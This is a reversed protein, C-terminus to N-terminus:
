ARSHGQSSHTQQTRIEGTGVMEEKVSCTGRTERFRRRPGSVTGPQSLGECSPTLVTVTLHTGSSEDEHIPNGCTKSASHGVRLRMHNTEGSSILRPCKAGHVGALGGLGTIMVSCSIAEWSIASRSRNSCAAPKASGCGTCCKRRGSSRGKVASSRWRTVMRKPPSVHFCSSSMRHRKERCRSDSRFGAWDSDQRRDDPCPTRYDPM